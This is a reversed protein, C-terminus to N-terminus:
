PSTFLNTNKRFDDVMVSPNTISQMPYQVGGFFDNPTQYINRFQNLEAKTQDQPFLGNSGRSFKALFADEESLVKRTLLGRAVGEKFLRDHQKFFQKREEIGGTLQYTQNFHKFLTGEGLFKERAENQKVLPNTNLSGVGTQDVPIDFTFWNTFDKMQQEPTEGIAVQVAAETPNKLHPRLAGQRRINGGQHGKDKKEPSLAKLRKILDEEEVILKTLNAGKADFKEDKLEELRNRITQKETKLELSEKLEKKADVPTIKVGKPLVRIDAPQEVTAAMSKGLHEQMQPVVISDYEQIIDTLDGIKVPPADGVKEISEMVDILSVSDTPGGVTKHLDKIFDPDMVEKLIKEIFAPTSPIDKIAKKLINMRGVDTNERFAPTDKVKDLADSFKMFAITDGIIKQLTKSVDKPKMSGKFYTEPKYILKGDVVSMLEKALFQELSKQEFNRVIEEPSSGTLMSAIGAPTGKRREATERRISAQITGERGSPTLSPHRKYLDVVEGFKLGQLQDILAKKSLSTPMPKIGLLSNRANVAKTARIADTKKITKKFKKGSKVILSEIGATKAWISGTPDKDKVYANFTHKGDVVDEHSLFTTGKMSSIVKFHDELSKSTSVYMPSGKPFPTIENVVGSVLNMNLPKGKAFAKLKTYAEKSDGQVAKTYLDKIMAIKADESVPTPIPVLAKSTDKVEAKAEAKAKKDKKPKKPAKVPVVKVGSTGAFVPSGVKVPVEVEVNDKRPMTSTTYLPESNKEAKKTIDVVDEITMLHKGMKEELKKGAPTLTITPPTSSVPESVKYINATNLKPVEYAKFGDTDKYFDNTFKIYTKFSTFFKTYAKIAQRSDISKKVVFEDSDNFDGVKSLYTKYSDIVKQNASKLVWFERSGEFQGMISNYVDKVGKVPKFLDTTSMLTIASMLSGAGPRQGREYAEVLGRLAKGGLKGSAGVKAIPLVTRGILQTWIAVNSARSTSDAVKAGRFSKLYIEDAKARAINNPSYYLLDHEFAALDLKNVPLFYSESGIGGKYDLGIRQYISTGPGNWNYGPLHWEKRSPLSSIIKQKSM